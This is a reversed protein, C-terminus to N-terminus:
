CHKFYSIIWPNILGIFIADTDVIIAKEYVTTINHSYNVNQKAAM